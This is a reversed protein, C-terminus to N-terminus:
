GWSASTELSHEVFHQLEDMQERGMHQGVCAAAYVLTLLVLAVPVFWFALPADGIQMQAYGYVAGCFGGFVILGYLAMFATWISPMPMFLGTLASGSEATEIEFSLQPSGFHQRSEGIRLVVYRGSVTGTIEPSHRNLADRLRDLAQDPTLSSQIWLRPRMRLFRIVRCPHCRRTLCAVQYELYAKEPTMGFGCLAPLILHNSRQAAQRPKDTRRFRLSETSCWDVRIFVLLLLTM